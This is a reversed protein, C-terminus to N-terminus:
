GQPALLLAIEWWHGSPNLAVGSQNTQYRHQQHEQWSTVDRADDRIVCIIERKKSGLEGREREGERRGEGEEGGIASSEVKLVFSRVFAYRNM